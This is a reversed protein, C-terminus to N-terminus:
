RGARWEAVRVVKATNDWTICCGWPYVVNGLQVGRDESAFRLGCPGNWLANLWQPWCPFRNFSADRTMNWRRCHPCVVDLSVSWTAVPKEPGAPLDAATM